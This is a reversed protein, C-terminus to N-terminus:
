PPFLPPLPRVPGLHRPTRTPELGLHRLLGPDFGCLAFVATTAIMILLMGRGVGLQLPGAGFGGGFRAGGGGGGFPGGRGGRRIIRPMRPDRPDFSMARILYAHRCPNSWDPAPSASASKVSGRRYPIQPASRWTAAANARCR